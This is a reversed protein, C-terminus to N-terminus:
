TGPRRPRRIWEFLGTVAMSAGAAAGIGLVFFWWGRREDNAVDSWVARPVIARGSWHLPSTSDLGGPTGVLAEGAALGYVFQLRFTNGGWLFWPGQSPLASSVTDLDLFDGNMVTPGRASSRSGSNEIVARRWFGSAIIGVGFQVATVGEPCSLAPLDFTLVQVLPDDLLPDLHHAEVLAGEAGPAGGWFRTDVLRADGELILAGAVSDTGCGRVLRLEISPLDSTPASVSVTVAPPVAGARGVLRISGSFALGPDRILRAGGLAALLLM